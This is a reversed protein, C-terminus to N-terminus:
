FSLLNANEQYEVALGLNQIKRWNAQAFHFFCGKINAAPFSSKLAETAALEFDIMIEHPELMANLDKIADFM